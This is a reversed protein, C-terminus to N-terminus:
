YPVDGEFEQKKLLRKINEESTIPDYTNSGDLCKVVCDSDPHLFFVFSQRTRM